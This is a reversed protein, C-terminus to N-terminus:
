FGLVKWSREGTAPAVQYSPMGGKPQVTISRTEGGVRVEDIRNRADEIRIQQTSPALPATVSATASAAPTPTPAPTPATATQAQSLACLSMSAAILFRACAALRSPNFMM